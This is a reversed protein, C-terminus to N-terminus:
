ETFRVGCAGYPGACDGAGLASHVCRSLGGFPDLCRDIICALDAGDCAETCGALARLDDECSERACVGTAQLLCTPCVQEGAAHCRAFCAPDPGGAPDTPCGAACPAFPACQPRGGLADAPRAILLIADCREDDLGDGWSLPETPVGGVAINDHTCRLALVDGSTVPVWAQPAFLWTGLWGPDFRPLDLVCRDADARELTAELQVGRAGMRAAAGIITGDVGLTFDRGQRVRRDAPISLGTHAFQVAEVRNGPAADPMWLDVATREVPVAEDLARASYHVMLVLRSGAPVVFGHDAPLILPPDEPLRAGLSRWAPVGPGADCPYGVADAAADLADLQASYIPDVAFLEARRLMRRDGAPAWGDLWTDAEVAHDLPLCRRDDGGEFAPIYGAGADIRLTAPGPDPTSRPAPPIYDLPTGERYGGAQWAAFRLVQEDTLPEVGEVPRCEPDPLAPPMSRAFVTSVVAGAWWPPTDDDWEATTLDLDSVAGPGHCRLCHGEVLARIDAHWTPPEDVLTGDVRADTPAADPLPPDGTSSEDPAADCGATLALALAALPLRALHQM